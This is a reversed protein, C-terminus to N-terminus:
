YTLSALYSRRRCGRRTEPVLLRMDAIQLLEPDHAAHIQVAQTLHKLPSLIKLGYDTPMSLM